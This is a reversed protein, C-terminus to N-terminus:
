RGMKFDQWRKVPAVHPETNDKMWDDFATQLRSVTEPYALALDNSESPDNEVNFLFPKRGDWAILKWPGQRVYWSSLFKRPGSMLRFKEVVSEFEALGEGGLPIGDLSAWFLMRSGDVPAEGTLANLFSVGDMEGIYSDLLGAYDLATPVVDLISHLNVNDGHKGDPVYAIMPVRVGGEWTSWKAGRLM